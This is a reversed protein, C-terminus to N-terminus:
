RGRFQPERKERVAAQGERYDASRFCESGGREAGSFDCDKDAKMLENISRNIASLTLPGGNAISRLSSKIQDEFEALTWIRSAVGLRLAEAAELVRASMFIDATPELGLKKQMLEINRTAYGIGLRAAPIRFHADQRVLRLGCSLALVFGGGFCVGRVVAVTPKTADVLATIAGAVEAEYEAVAAAASRRDGFQAIDAGAYFTKEGAGEVAIVQVSQDDDAHAILVRLERWMDFNMANLHTPNGTTILAIGNQRAYRLCPAGM